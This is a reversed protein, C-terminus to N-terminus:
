EGPPVVIGARSRAGRAERPRGLARLDGGTISSRARAEVGVDRATGLVVAVGLLGGARGAYRVGGGPPAVVLRAGRCGATLWGLVEEPDGLTASLGIRQAEGGTVRNLRGLVAPVHWGPDDGAFVHAEDVVVTRLHACLNRHAVRTSILMAELSQPTTLLLDPPDSLNRGRLSTTVDGHWLGTRRRATLLTREQWDLLSNIRDKTSEASAAVGSAFFGVWPDWEGSMSLRLLADQYQERRAEFWPSVVLVPQGLVGARMLQLVIILRGLRGNGDSFPHLTEFQYHALAAQVVVPM